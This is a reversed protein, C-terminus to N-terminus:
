KNRCPRKDIQAPSLNNMHYILCPLINCIIHNKVGLFFSICPSRKDLDSLYFDSLKCKFKEIVDDTMCVDGEEIMLIGSYRHRPEIIHLIILRVGHHAATDLAVSFAYKSAPCFAACFLITEYRDDKIKM